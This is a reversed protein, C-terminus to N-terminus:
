AELAAKLTAILKEREHESVPGQEICKLMYSAVYIDSVKKLASRVAKTQYVIKKCTGPENAVVLRKVAELQGIARNIRHVMEESPSPSTKKQM